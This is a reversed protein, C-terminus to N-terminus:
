PLSVWACLNCSCLQQSSAHILTGAETESPKTSTVSYELRLRALPLNCLQGERRASEQQILQLPDANSPGCWSEREFLYLLKQYDFPM